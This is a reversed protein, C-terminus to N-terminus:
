SRLGPRLPAPDVEPAPPLLELPRDLILVPVGDALVTAGAYWPLQDLPPGLSKVVVEAHGLVADVGLAGRSAGGVLILGHSPQCEDAALGLLDALRWLRGGPAPLELQLWAVGPVPVAGSADIIAGVRAMPVAFIQQAARVILAPLLTLAHPLHLTFCTGRQPESDIALSGGIARLQSAVVDMGVGRGSVDTVQERTSFGPRCILAYVEAASLAAASAVSHLGQLVAVERLAAVNLGCGDDRVELQVGERGRRASLSVQGVPPKGQRQRAAPAELGHDVANRLIHMLPQDLGELIGRDLEIDGGDVAFRVEKGLGQALDRLFRPYRETLVRLPMLRAAMLQAHLARIQEGLAMLGLSLPGQPEHRTAAQLRQRAIFIEGMGDVLDDLVQTRVRVSAVGRREQVRLGAAAAAPELALADSGGALGRPGGSPADASRAPAGLGAADPAGGALSPAGSHAIQQGLTDLSRLLLDAVAPPLEGQRRCDAIVDELRHALAAIPQYHMAAAMSKLSHAHRFIEDITVLSSAAPEHDVLLRGMSQVHELGEELFLAQYKATNLLM